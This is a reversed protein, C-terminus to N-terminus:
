MFLASAEAPAKKTALMTSSASFCPIIVVFDAKTEYFHVKNAM